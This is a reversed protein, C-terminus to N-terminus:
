CRLLSKAYFLRKGQKTKILHYVGRGVNNTARYDPPELATITDKIDKDMLAAKRKRHIDMTKLHCASNAHQRIARNNETRSAKLVGHHSALASEEKVYYKDKYQSCYYCNFHSEAPQNENVLLQFWDINSSVIRRLGCLGHM